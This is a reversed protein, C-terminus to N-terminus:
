LITLKSGNGESFLHQPDKAVLLPELDELLIPEEPQFVM